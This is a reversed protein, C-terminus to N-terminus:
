RAHPLTRSYVQVVEVGAAALARVLNTAVNGAGIMVAKM